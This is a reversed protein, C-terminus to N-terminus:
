EGTFNAKRKNIFADVGEKFDKTTMMKGFLESELASGDIDKQDFANICRISAEVALPAKSAIKNLIEKAKIVEQGSDVVHNVLGLRYAEDASIMDATLTLEISKARGILNTLRQTGSYGPLLGLNVEPQGFKSKSTAVRMHCAMALENGGGLSFGDIAAIVPAHFSEIRNFVQNGKKSLASGTEADLGTFEKIDAGAAFAKDGSGTIIVGKISFDNEYTDLFLKLDSIVYQNLANLAKPRNITITAIGNELEILVSHYEM